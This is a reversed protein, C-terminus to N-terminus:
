CEGEGCGEPPDNTMTPGPLRSVLALRKETNIETRNPRSLAFTM